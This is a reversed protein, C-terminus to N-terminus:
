KTAVKFGGVGNGTIVNPASDEQYLYLPWGKYTIQHGVAGGTRNIIGFWTANLGSALVLNTTYFPPWLTACGATCTSTGSNQTDATDVYLTYGTSSALYPGYASSDKVLVAYSGSYSTKNTTPSNSPMVSNSPLQTSVTTTKATTSAVTTYASTSAAVTSTAYSGKGSTYIYAGGIVVILVIIVAVAAVANNM